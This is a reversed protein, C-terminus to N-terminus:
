HGGPLCPGAGERWRGVAERERSLLKGSLLLMVMWCLKGKHCDSSLHSTHAWGTRPGTRLVDERKEGFRMMRLLNAVIVTKLLHFASTCFFIQSQTTGMPYFPSWCHMQYIEALVPFFNRFIRVTGLCDPLIAMSRCFLTAELQRTV